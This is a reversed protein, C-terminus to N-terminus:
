FSIIWSKKILIRLISTVYQREAITTIELFRDTIEKNNKDLRDGKEDYFVHNQFDENKIQRTPIYSGSGTIVSYITKDM